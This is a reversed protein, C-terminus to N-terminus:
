EIHYTPAHGPTLSPTRVDALKQELREANQQMLGATQVLGIRKRESRFLKNKLGDDDMQFVAFCVPHM